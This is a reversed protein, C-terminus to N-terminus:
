VVADLAQKQKPSKYTLLSSPSLSLVKRVAIELSAERSRAKQSQLTAAATTAAESQLGLASLKAKKQQHEQRSKQESAQRSERSCPQEKNLLRKGQCKAKSQEIERGAASEVSALGLFTHWAYSLTRFVNISRMSLGQMLDAQIAYAIMGVATSRSNQLKLPDERDEDSSGGRSEETYNSQLQKKYGATFRKSVVKRGIGAATHRYDQTTLRTGLQEATKQTM